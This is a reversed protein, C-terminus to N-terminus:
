KIFHCVLVIVRIELRHAGWFNYVIFFLFDVLVVQLYSLTCPRFRSKVALRRRDRRFAGNGRISDTEWFYTLIVKLSSGNKVFLSFHWVKLWSRGQSVTDMRLGECFLLSESRCYRLWMFRLVVYSVWIPSVSLFLKQFFTSVKACRFSLRHQSSNLSINLTLGSRWRARM